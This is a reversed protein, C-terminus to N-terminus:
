RHDLFALGSPLAAHACRLTMSSLVSGVRAGKYWRVATPKASPRSAM